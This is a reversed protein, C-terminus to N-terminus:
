PWSPIRMFASTWRARPPRRTASAHRLEVDILAGEIFVVDEAVYTVEVAFQRGATTDGSEGGCGVTLGAVLLAAAGRTCAKLVTAGM